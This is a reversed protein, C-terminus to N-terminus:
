YKQHVTSQIVHAYVGLCYIANTQMNLKLHFTAFQLFIHKVLYKIQAAMTIKM